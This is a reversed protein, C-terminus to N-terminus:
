PIIGIGTLKVAYDGFVFGMMGISSTLIVALQAWGFQFGFWPGFAKTLYVYDGGMRPYATALEAYCLAGVLCLVGGLTWIGLVEEPSSLHGNIIAPIVYISSGIVIGIIISVADWLGLQPEIPQSQDNKMRM